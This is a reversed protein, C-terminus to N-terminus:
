ENIEFEEKDRNYFDNLFDINQKDLLLLGKLTRKYARMEDNSINGFKRKRMFNLIDEVNQITEELNENIVLWDYKKTKLVRQIQKIGRSQRTRGRDGRQRLLQEETRPMVYIMVTEPFREKIELGGSVGMDILFDRNNNEELKDELLPMGYYDSEIKSCAMLKNENLLDLYEKPSIFNYQEGDIEGVRPSRTTYTSIQRANNRNKLLNQIITSKGSGSPGSIVVLLNNM